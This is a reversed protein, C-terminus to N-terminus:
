RTEVVEIRQVTTRKLMPLGELESTARALAEDMYFGPFTGNERLVTYGVDTTEVPFDQLDM